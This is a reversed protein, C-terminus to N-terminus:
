GAGGRTLWGVALFSTYMAPLYAIALPRPWRASGRAFRVAAVAPLGAPAAVLWGWGYAASGPDWPRLAVLVVATSLLAAAVATGSTGAPGLVTAYTREGAGPRRTAKRGLELCLGGLTAAVVATLGSLGPRLHESRLFGAYVYLSLLPQIPLNVALHLLLRDGSPWGWLRDVTMVVVTYGLQGALALLVVGRGANLLLLAAIGVVVLVVLDRERVLGSPLPRGPNYRADYDHDRLDDLARLLLMDVVMTVTTVALAGDPRWRESAGAVCAFLATLGLTWSVMLPLQVAPPYAARVYRGLRGIM